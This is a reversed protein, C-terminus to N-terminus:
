QGSRSGKGNAHRRWYPVPPPPPRNYYDKEPNKLTNKQEPQDVKIIAHYHLAIDFYM